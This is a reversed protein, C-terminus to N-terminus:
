DGYISVAVYNSDPVEKEIVEYQETYSDYDYICEEYMFGDLAENIINEDLTDCDGDYNEKLYEKFAKSEKIEDKTKYEPTDDKHWSDDIVGNGHKINKWEEKTYLTLSHTSSSNTEFVGKRIQTKM